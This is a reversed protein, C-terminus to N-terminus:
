PQSVRKQTNHAIKMLEKLTIKKTKMRGDKYYGSIPDYTENKDMLNLYKKAWVNLEEIIDKEINAPDLLFEALTQNPDTLFKAKNKDMCQLREFRFKFQAGERSFIPSEIHHLLTRIDIDIKFWEKQWIKESYNKGLLKDIALVEDRISHVTNLYATLHALFIQYPKYGCIKQRLKARLIKEGLKKVENAHFLLQQVRNDLQILIRQRSERIRQEDENKIDKPGKILGQAFFYFIELFTVKNPNTAFSYVGVNPTVIWWEKGTKDKGTILKSM